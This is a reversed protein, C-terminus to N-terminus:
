VLLFPAHACLTRRLNGLARVAVCGVRMGVWPVCWVGCACRGGACVQNPFEAKLEAVTDDLLADGIAVIVLNLGDRALRLSLAKGIGSSGGTVLAWQANYKKKLNQPRRM